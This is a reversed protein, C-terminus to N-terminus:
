RSSIGFQSSTILLNLKGRSEFWNLKMLMEGKYKGRIRELSHGM